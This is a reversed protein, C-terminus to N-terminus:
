IIMGRLGPGKIIGGWFIFPVKESFSSSVGLAESILVFESNSLKKSVELITVRASAKVIALESSANVTFGENLVTM